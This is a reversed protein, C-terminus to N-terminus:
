PVVVVPTRTFAFKRGVEDFVNVQCIYRGPALGKLPVMLKVPVAEPRTAALQTADVPNVVFSEINKENFFSMTVKVKRAKSNAPDPKADYVDFTVYMNQNRSFAKSINPVIKEDGDVLPSAILEKTSVKKEASGVAAAASTKQSSWIISSMKLGSTEASLDPVVFNQTVTGIKGTLDEQVVFKIVYKGPDLPAFGTNYEFGKVNASEANAGELTVPVSEQLSAAAQRRGDQIEAIFDFKTTKVGAGGKKAALEIVSGPIKVSVPVFYTTPSIRFYDVQMGLPLDVVPDASSLAERLRQQKDGSNQKSWDKDAYYGKRYDLAQTALGNTLEIKITRFKGDMTTNSTVYGITYYSQVDQQARSIGLAIDNSDLFVKGGTDKALTVLTEQAANKSTRQSAMSSGNPVGTGRSAAQSAAGGPPDATLGTVDIPYIKMNAKMAANISADIQAQNDVGTKSVGGSFYILQKTEPFGKLMKSVDQIAALKMDTNLINFETEDAVFAAGTDPSCDGGTDALGALESMEGIPLTRIIKTLVDRDSTFDSLVHISSTYLFIAVQDDATINKSLFDLAGQQARLQEPVGMSSFDFFFPMLRKNHHTVLDPKGPQSVTITTKPPPPLELQDALQLTPPPEPETSLKEFQFVTIPERKGDETIKFDSQKLDEVLKGSKDKVTVEVVVLNTGTSFTPIAPPAQPAQPQPQTPQQGALSFAVLAIAAGALAPRPIRIYRM